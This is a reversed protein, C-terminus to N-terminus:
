EGHFEARRKERGWDNEEKGGRGRREEWKKRKKRGIEGERREGKEGEMNEEGGGKEREMCVPRYELMMLSRDLLGLSDGLHITRSPSMSGM